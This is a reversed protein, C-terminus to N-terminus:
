MKWRLRLRGDDGLEVTTAFSEGERTLLAALWRADEQPARELRFRRHVFPAMELAQLEGTAPDLAPFYALALDGRYHERGGIGEYDTLFDGCGYLVLRGDHVEIAKVHHSSHGHVVAVGAEDILRRALARQEEPVRYGWNGGWHISAVVLDAPRRARELVERMQPLVKAPPEPLLFVGAREATAAWEAPVGSTVSAMAVVLVRRGGGADLVAPDRAQELDHGAGATRLGARRLTALTAELGPFGWDLVHNNALVCCDIGAATLVPVNEPHMRYHIGKAPWHDDSTTIATELNVIRAAPRARELEALADGWVYSFGGPAKLAPIPGSAEEALTVYHRADKVWPEHLTPDVSHPLVQDIGRGPMVDGTLFLTVADM